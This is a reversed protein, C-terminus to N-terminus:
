RGTGQRRCGILKFRTWYARKESSKHQNKLSRTKHRYTDMTSKSIIQARKFKGHSPEGFIVHFPQEGEGDDIAKLVKLESKSLWLWTGTNDPLCRKEVSQESYV